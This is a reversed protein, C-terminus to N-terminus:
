QANGLVNQTEEILTAANEAYGDANLSAAIKPNIFAGGLMIKTEPLEKKLMEVLTGVKDLTTSMMTSIGIISPTHERATQLFKDIPVNKGLDTVNFGYGRYIDRVINKGLDHTDGEIVGILINESREPLDSDTSIKQLITGILSLPLLLEPMGVKRNIFRDRVEDMAPYIATSLIEEPQHASIVSPLLETVESRKLGTIANKLKELLTSM